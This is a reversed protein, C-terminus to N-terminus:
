SSEYNSQYTTETSYCLDDLNLAQICCKNLVVECMKINM